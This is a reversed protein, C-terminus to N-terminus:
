LLTCKMLKGKDSSMKRTLDFYGTDKIGLCRVNKIVSEISTEQTQDVVNYM